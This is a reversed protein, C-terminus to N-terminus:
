VMRYIYDQILYISPISMQNDKKLIDFMFFQQSPPPTLKKEENELFLHYEQSKTLFTM